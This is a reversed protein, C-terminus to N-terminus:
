FWEDSWFSRRRSSDRDIGNDGYDAVAFTGSLPADETYNVRSRIINLGTYIEKPYIVESYILSKFRNYLSPQEYLVDHMQKPRRDNPTFSPDYGQTWQIGVEKSLDANAFYYLNNCFTHQVSSTALLGAQAPDYFTWGSLFRTELSRYKFTVMPEVFSLRPNQNAWNNVNYTPLNQERRKEDAIWRGGM